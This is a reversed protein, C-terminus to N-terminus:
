GKDEIGLIDELQGLDKHSIVQLEIPQNALNSGPLREAQLTYGSDSGSKLLTLSAVAGGQYRLELTFQSGHPPPVFTRSWNGAHAALWEELLQIRKTDLKRAGFDGLSSPANVTVADIQPVSSPACAAGGCLALTPLLARFKLNVLSVNLNDAGVIARSTCRV